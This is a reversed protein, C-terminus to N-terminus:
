RCGGSRCSPMPITNRFQEQYRYSFLNNQAPACDLTSSCANANKLADFDEGPFGTKKDTECFDSPIKSDFPAAAMADVRSLEDDELTQLECFALGPTSIWMALLAITSRIFNKLNM